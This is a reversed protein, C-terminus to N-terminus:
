GCGVNWFARGYSWGYVADWEPDLAQPPDDGPAGEVRPAIPETVGPDNMRCADYPRRVFATLEPVKPVSPFTKGNVPRRAERLTFAMGDGRASCTLTWM